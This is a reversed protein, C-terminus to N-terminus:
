LNLSKELSRIEQLARTVSLRHKRNKCDNHKFDQIAPHNKNLKQTKSSMKELASTVKNYVNEVDHRMHKQLFHCKKEINMGLAAYSYKNLLYEIDSHGKQFTMGTLERNLQHADKFTAMVIEMSQTQCSAYQPQQAVSRASNQISFLFQPNINKSLNITINSVYWEFELRGDQTLVECAENLHWGGAITAYRDLQKGQINKTDAYVSSIVIKMFCLFTVFIRM